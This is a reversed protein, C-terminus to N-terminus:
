NIMKSQIDLKHIHSHITDIEDKFDHIDQATVTLQNAQDYYNIWEQKGWPFVNFSKKLKNLEAQRKREELADNYLHRCTSLTRDLAVEQKKTPYIRYQFSKRM